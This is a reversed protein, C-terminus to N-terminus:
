NLVVIFLFILIEGVVYVRKEGGGLGDDNSAAPMHEWFLWVWTHTCKRRSFLVKVYCYIKTMFLAVEDKKM